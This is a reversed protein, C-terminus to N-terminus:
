VRMNTKLIDVIMNGMKEAADYSLYTGGQINVTVNSSGGLLSGPNKTAFIYDAPDTKIVQGSPTVVADKVKTSTAGSRLSAVRQIQEALRQYLAIEANIDSSVKTLTESSLKKRLEATATALQSVVAGKNAELALEDMTKQLFKLKEQELNALTEALQTKIEKRKEDALQVELARKAMLANQEAVLEAMKADFETQALARKENFDVIAQELESLNATKKADAIETAYQKQTDTTRKIAEEETKIQNKIDEIAQVTTARALEDKLKTIRQDADAFAKALDKIDGTKEVAFSAKLENMRTIVRSIDADISALKSKTEKDLDSLAEKGKKSADAYSKAFDSLKENIANVSSLTKETLSELEKSIGKTAGSLDGGLNVQKSFNPLTLKLDTWNLGKDFNTKMDDFLASILDKASDSDEKTTKSWTEWLKSAAEGGVKGLNEIAGKFDGTFLDLLGSGLTKWNEALSKTAEFLSKFGDILFTFPMGVMAIVVIAIARAVGLFNNVLSYLAGAVAISGEGVGNLGGMANSLENTLSELAPLVAKGVEEKLNSFQVQMQQIRGSYTQAMASASGGFETSLEKLILLQADLTRGSEVLTKIMEQQDDTFAVGVRRLATIGMVPDQLAKGLQIASNKLDQGLATSMDLVTQTAQPFINSGIKTFTLLMNEAALITDDEYTTVQELSKSLAVAADSTVGAVGKTSALVANLQAFAQESEGAQKISDGLFNGIARIAIMGGAVAFLQKGFSSFTNSAVATQKSTNTAQTGVDKLAKELKNLAATAENKAEIVIQLTSKDM